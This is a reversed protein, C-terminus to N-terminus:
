HRDNAVITAEGSFAIKVDFGTTNTDRYVKMLDIIVDGLDRDFFEADLKKLVILPVSGRVPIGTMKPSPDVLVTPSYVSCSTCTDSNTTRRCIPCQRM